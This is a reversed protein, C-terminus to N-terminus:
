VLSKLVNVVYDVEKKTNYISFSFRISPKQLDVDNLIETLVHSTQTSGSQCASGKSCAINKLDLQFLLMASKDPAVPLAINVLTYTTADENDSLGNFVIAPIETKIRKIFYSKLEKIFDTEEKLQKYSCDLAKELGM